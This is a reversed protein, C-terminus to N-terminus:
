SVKLSKPALTGSIRRAHSARARVRIEIARAEQAGPAVCEDCIM